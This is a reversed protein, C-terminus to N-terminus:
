CTSIHKLCMCFLDFVKETIKIFLFFVVLVFANDLVGLIGIIIYIVKLVLDRIRILYKTMDDESQSLITTVEWIVSSSLSTNEM